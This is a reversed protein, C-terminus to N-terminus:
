TPGDGTLVIKTADVPSLITSCAGGGGRVESTLRININIKEEQKAETLCVCVCIFFLLLLLLLLLHFRLTPSISYNDPSVLLVFVFVRGMCVCLKTCVVM